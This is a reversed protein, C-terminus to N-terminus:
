KRATNRNESIDTSKRKSPSNPAIAFFEGTIRALVIPIVVARRKNITEIIDPVAM